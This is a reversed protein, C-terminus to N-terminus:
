ARQLNTRRRRRFAGVASRLADGISCGSMCSEGLSLLSALVFRWALASTVSFGDAYLMKAFIGLTSFSVASILAMVFGSQAIGSHLMHHNM